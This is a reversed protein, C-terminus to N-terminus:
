LDIIEGTSALNFLRSNKPEDQMLVDFLSRRNLDVPKPIFKQILGEQILENLAKPPNGSIMVRRAQPQYQQTARLVEVGDPGPMHCDTVVVDLSAKAMLIEIAQDYCDALFLEHSKLERSLAKLIMAEDDVLLIRM